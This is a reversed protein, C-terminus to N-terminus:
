RWINNFDEIARDLLWNVHTDWSHTGPVMALRNLEERDLSLLIKGNGSPHVTDPHAEFSFDNDEGVLWIKAPLHWRYRCDVAERVAIHFTKKMAVTLKIIRDGSM